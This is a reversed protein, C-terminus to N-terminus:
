RRPSPFPTLLATKFTTVSDWKNHEGAIIDRSLHEDQQKKKLLEQQERTRKELELLFIYRLEEYTVIIAVTKMDPAKEEETEKDSSVETDGGGNSLSM